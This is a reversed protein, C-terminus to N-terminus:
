VGASMFFDHKAMQNSVRHRNSDTWKSTRDLGDVLSTEAEFGIEKAAKITSGFRHGSNDWPRSPRLLIESKSGTLEVILLALDKITTEVGSALNYAEGPSGKTACAILGRCIDEVFIFDRSATGENELPLPQDNLAKWIFTPVVNRWVTAYTGRWQGAGLIERPGYVNQFRATVFPLGTQHHFYNGYMEGVLKSISYPSDHNLSVKANEFTASAVGFTKEAVACGAASYVVKILSKYTSLHNFLKLSTISNNDHDAIPDAISSQNGHFCALHWVFDLDRPIRALIREDAISGFVFNVRPDRPVNEIDSSLLNDVVTIQAVGLDLLQLVLNSGVFGAGGVVLVNSGKLEM